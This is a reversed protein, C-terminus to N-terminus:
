IYFRKIAKRYTVLKNDTAFDPLIKFQISIDDCNNFLNHNLFTTVFFAGNLLLFVMVFKSGYLFRATKTCTLTRFTQSLDPVKASFKKADNYDYNLNM